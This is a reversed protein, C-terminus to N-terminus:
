GCLEQERRQNIRSHGTDIHLQHSVLRHRSHKLLSLTITKNEQKKEKWSWDTRNNKIHRYQELWNLKITQWDAMRGNNTDDYYKNIIQSGFNMLFLVKTEFHNNFSLFTMDDTLV